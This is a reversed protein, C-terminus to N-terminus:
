RGPSNHFVTVKPSNTGVSAVVQIGADAIWYTTFEETTNAALYVQQILTGAADNISFTAATGGTHFWIGYVHINDGGAVTMTLDGAAFTKSTHRPACREAM